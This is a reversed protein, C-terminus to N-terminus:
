THSNRTTTVMSLIKIYLSALGTGGCIKSYIFLTKPLTNCKDTPNTWLIYLPIIYIGPTPLLDQLAVILLAFKEKM